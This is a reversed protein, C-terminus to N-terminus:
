NTEHHPETLLLEMYVVDLWRDFKRGVQNFRGVEVFGQRAHLAISATQNADIGAVIAHHSLTRARRVLDRLLAAGIGRGRLADTVYVSDEVTFRYASRAHYSSLSGWGVVQGDIEAVIVPHALGHRNFWERRGEIPEPTEQYTCSSHEVYFNYIANIADLDDERAGRLNM